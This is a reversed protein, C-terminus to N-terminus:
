HMSRGMLELGYRNIVKQLEDNENVYQNVAVRLVINEKRLRELEEHESKIGDISDYVKEISKRIISFRESSSDSSKKVFCNGM